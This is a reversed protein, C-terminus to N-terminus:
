RRRGADARWEDVLWGKDFQLLHDALDFYRDDHTAAIVTKGRARLDPLFETYFRERFAPDQDAAWEDFVYIPKDEIMAAVMAVRKRQGTSLDLNTFRGNVYRTRDAIGFDALLGNVHDPDADRYGHLRDFVHGEAFVASMLRRRTIEDTALGDITIQGANPRYLGMLLKLVTSKGSGNGGALFHLRGPLFELSLPGVAFGPRGGDDVYRFFVQEFVIGSIPGNALEAETARFPSAGPIPPPTAGARAALERDLAHIRCLASWARFVVPAELAYAAPLGLVILGARVAIDAPEMALLSPVFVITTALLLVLLEIGVYNAATWRGMAIRSDAIEAVTRDFTDKLFSERRKRNLRLEKFGDILDATARFQSNERKEVESESLMLRRHTAALSVFGVMGVGLTLWFAEQSLWVFYLLVFAVVGAVTMVAVLGMVSEALVRCDTSLRNMAATKDLCEFERLELSTVREAIRIRVRHLFDFVLASAAKRQRTYAFLILPLALMYGGMARSADEGRLLRAFGDILLALLIANLLGCLFSLAAVRTVRRKDSPGLLELPNM